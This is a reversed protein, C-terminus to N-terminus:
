VSLANNYDLYDPPCARRRGAFTALLCRQARQLQARQRLPFWAGPPPYAATLSAAPQLNLQECRAGMWEDDCACAGDSDCVGNLQCDDDTTCAHAAALALLLAGARM